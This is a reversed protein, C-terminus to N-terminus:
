EGARSYVRRCIVWDSGQKTVVVVMLADPDSPDFIALDDFDGAARPSAPFFRSPVLGLRERAPNAEAPWLRGGPLVRAGVESQERLDVGARVFQFGSQVTHIVGGDPTVYYLDCEPGSSGLLRQRLDYDWTTSGRDSRALFEADLADWEVKPTPLPSELTFVRSLNPTWKWAPRTATFYAPVHGSWAPRDEGRERAGALNAPVLRDADGIPVAAYFGDKVETVSQRTRAPFSLTYRNARLTEGGPGIDVYVVSSSADVNGMYQETLHFLYLMGGVALAPFLVWTLRRMRFLGLLLFDAPGVAVVFGALIMVTLGVPVLQASEPMLLEALRGFDRGEARMARVVPLAVEDQPMKGDMLSPMSSHPVKWLWCITRKWEDSDYADPDAAVVARGLGIRTRSVAARKGKRLLLPKGNTDLSFAPKAGGALANLFEVHYPKLTLSSLPENVKGFAVYVAGGSKVWRLAAKLQPERMAAFADDKLAVLDYSCFDLPATPAEGAPVVAAGSRMWGIDGTHGRLLSDPKLAACLKVLGPDLRASADVVLISHQELSEKPCLLAGVKLPITGSATIFEADVNIFRGDGGFDEAPPLLMHFQQDGKPLVLEGSEYSAFAQDKGYSVRLRGQLLGAGDRHFKAEVTIPGGTRGSMDAQELVVSLSEAGAARAFAASALAAILIVGMRKM